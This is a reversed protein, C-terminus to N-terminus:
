GNQLVFSAIFLLYHGFKESVSFSAASRLALQLMMLTLQLRRWTGQVAAEGLCLQAAPAFIHFSEFFRLLQTHSRAHNIGGRAVTM